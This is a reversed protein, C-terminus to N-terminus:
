PHNRNAKHHTSGLIALSGEVVGTGRWLGCSHESLRTPAHPDHWVPLGLAARAHDEATLGQADVADVDSGYKLLLKLAVPSTFGKEAALMLPTELSAEKVAHVSAGSDLLVRFCDGQDAMRQGHRLTWSRLEGALTVFHLATWTGYRERVDAGRALLLRVTEMNDNGIAKIVNIVAPRAGFDLLLQAMASGRNARSTTALFLLESHGDVTTVVDNVFADGGAALWSRVADVDGDGVALRIAGPINPNMKAPARARALANAIQLHQHNEPHYKHSGSSAASDSLAFRDKSFLCTRAVRGGVPALNHALYHTKKSM